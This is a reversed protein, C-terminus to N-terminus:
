CYMQGRGGGNLLSQLYKIKNAMLSLDHPGNSGHANEKVANFVILYPELEDWPVVKGTAGVKERFSLFKKYVQEEAILTREENVM